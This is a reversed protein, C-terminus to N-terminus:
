KGIVPRGQDFGLQKSSIPEIYGLLRELSHLTILPRKLELIRRCVFGEPVHVFNGPEKLLLKEVEWIVWKNEAVQKAIQM